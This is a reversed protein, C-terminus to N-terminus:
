SFRHASPRSSSAARRPCRIRRSWSTGPGLRRPLSSCNRIPLAPVRPTRTMIRRPRPAGLKAYLAVIDSSTSDQLSVLLSQASPVSVSFLQAQGTGSISGNYTGGLTLSTVSTQELEFAYAGGQGGSGHATVTYSGTAPLTILSSDSTLDSFLTQNGPGDLDFQVGGSTNVVHLLVQQGSAGSFSWQNVGYPNTIDGNLVQNVTLSQQNPTVNYASVVFNGTSSLQSQPAQVQITYTGDAPLSFGSITAIAGSSSSTASALVDQNKDLLQVEGWDLAPSLAPNAGGTGPNLSVTISQGATGYFTYDDVSGAPNLIGPTSSNLAIPGSSPIQLITGNLVTGAVQEGRAYLHLGNLDLTTGSPVVLENVYVAEPQNTSTNKSQDVIQVYTSSALTLTNYAFNNVFGSQVASLDASMAELLQPPKTTGTGSDFEVNGQPNFDDANQTTGLLNGSILITSGPASTLIGSGNVSLGGELNLTGTSQVNLDGQDILTGVQATSTGGAISLGLNATITFTGNSDGILSVGSISSLHTDLVTGSNTVQLASVQSKGSIGQFSTLSSLDLLSGAGDSELLVPGGGIAGLLPVELDGGALAQFRTYSYYQTTDETMQTLAPLNLVSGVGTAQLTSTYNVGGAYSALRPLSATAGGSILFSSGDADTLDSFSFPSTGGTLSITGATDTTFQVLSIVGTGDLTLNVLNLSTLKGDEVTGGHTAQINSVNAKGGTGSFSSLVPVDLVSGSGDAELLIPGGSIGALLPLEVDGDALAQIQTYSYYNSTDETISTLAGFTLKSGTGTAQLTATDDDGGAYSALAPLSAVGGGSVLFSSGDADTLGTFTVASTGGSLSITGATDTTIQGVAITGTGDLTLNVLNLSTLKADEVTGGHTAQLNSFNAKGGTGSFSSLVPVNLVSGTGDGELLIPGGSISTLLPLEVDGGALAQIQTYSYYNSTDETITTLAGFTLKSGTGAAQLTATDNDGGAYSALAPVSAAGGGSILFSSGDANTLGTFTVISTGGSLSVTGATDTTIQGVAITGSGDLTLDVLNLGTLKGDEVTGGHTAQLNSFNAKGGAGSFSALDSVNLVSGSGDGELLIPGGSIGTLLPLEVDGDALAQIQTYSYYNSIDETISTLAGFTLKSGTGTAQLTATYGDGGAYSALAPFSAKGGGSIMFSTGDAKTLGTFAVASTGGSLSITGATDTAIQGVPITGTGDLTLNVLNLSALNGDNVTGGHTAQINSVNAKGGAGSFSSLVPVDLVSTSGDGELLIPGGSISTLLPLEVDGDALAQIQTYSYYNSIDETISTLAGFTLKSGTGTAQLTATYGDGGAYSALAPLSAKGGGSILFSSGDAKTLGTFTVTATGGSLSVTGASDTAIQGVPITGSGDLTLNVLNLSTLSGDDVTGGHTAQLNSVNAKGGTGSFSSLDPIDLVSGSGDGELLIPGGSIGTLLPLEIDGGALAQIQTYSYYDSTDETITTLAGFTLKSGTGTAQLTATAADGGAYSALAPLSAKAGGSILFSSGDAKTLGTFTVVSTGGSLTVTGGTDTAIQGVAITGTGDLTLNVLSLSALNGDNVTGGHTAQLTSFSAKGGTGSFSSLDSVNLVSGSGDGELLIPGGSIGTLLPLEIDGGALAQIQTYSYYDSTDETITTLAGFTLKSGTGTAQLTATAADGGAYSALGPASVKGGGSILFSSGDAKTLGTFAVTATGGSLSVTGATDTAIQGVPITGSGDLTLNVLDLSALNGDEVTGGHTAQLNSSNAKGGTGSFSSLAPVDLVSGSGDGELLIPGGSIGTLLPLEVDGGALAQIQTYSYYNSTDETIATLAGFTLKSGTGTAQLTATYGNGGAYSALAPVSVKGGGSVLFSSGDADTLGTFTVASTGGSLSVTGDTDTTIQGVSVTGTGDLTLNVLNLSTLKGDDVTGGHTAQLNSSDAKGGTGSFSSLDSVNLVSGSGDGELLIPGGSIRTLLPLEVDGGALAQIQTYSYYNSTDETISTLGGLVLKSGTGTAQLTATFGTPGSDSTLAPLSLTAGAQAFLSGGSDTTAGTVTLNIGSGNAILSGGTMALGGSLTSSAAVSLSGGSISLPDTSTLSHVSQTGTTIQITPNGSLNITVDDSATPVADNSWNSAQTWTTGDGQGTWSVNSLLTRPELSDVQLVASRRSGSTKRRPNVRRQPKWM